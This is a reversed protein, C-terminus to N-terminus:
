PVRGSRRGAKWGPQHHCEPRCKPNDPNDKQKWCAIFENVADEINAFDYKITAQHGYSYGPEALLHCGRIQIGNANVDCFDLSSLNKVEPHNSIAQFAKDLLEGYNIPYKDPHLYDKGRTTM